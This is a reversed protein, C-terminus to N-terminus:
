QSDSSGSSEGVNRGMSAWEGFLSSLQPISMSAIAEPGTRVRRVWGWFSRTQPQAREKLMARFEVAQEAPKMDAIEALRKLESGDVAPLFYQAGDLTFTHRADASSFEQM